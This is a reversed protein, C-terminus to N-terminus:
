YIREMKRSTLLAFLPFVIAVGVLSFALFGLANAIGNQLGVLLALVLVLGGLLPLARRTTAIVASRAFRKPDDPQYVYTATAPIQQPRYITPPQEPSSM